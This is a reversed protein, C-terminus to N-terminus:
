NMGFDIIIVIIKMTNHFRDRNKRASKDEIERLKGREKARLVRPVCYLRCFELFM